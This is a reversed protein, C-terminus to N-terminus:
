EDSHLLNVILSTSTPFTGGEPGQDGIGFGPSLGRAYLIRWPEYGELVQYVDCSSFCGHKPMNWRQM